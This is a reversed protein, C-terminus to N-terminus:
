TQRSLNFPSGLSPVCYLTTPTRRQCKAKVATQTAAGVFELDIETQSLVTYKGKALPKQTSPSTSVFVGDKFEAVYIGRTSADTPFWRGNISLPDPKASVPRLQPGTSQCGSLIVLSAVITANVLLFKM